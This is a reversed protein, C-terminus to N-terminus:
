NGGVWGPPPVGPLLGVVAARGAVCSVTLRVPLRWRLAMLSSKETAASAGGQMRPEPGENVALKRLGGPAVVHHVPTLEDAGLRRQGDVQLKSDNAIVM